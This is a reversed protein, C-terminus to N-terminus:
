IVCLGGCGRPENPGVNVPCYFVPRDTDPERRCPWYLRPCREVKCTHKAQRGGRKSRTKRRNRKSGHQRRTKRKKQKRRRKQKRRKKTKKQLQLKIKGQPDKSM